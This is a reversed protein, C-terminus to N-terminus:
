KSLNIEKKGMYKDIKAFIEDKIELKLKMESIPLKFDQMKVADKETVLLSTTDYQRMLNVLEEEKFYAHDEFYVKKVVDKPLYADLRHPNSIATVLLMRSSLNEFDVQRTFTDGEKAIIDAYMRTFWFERFPGSPFPLCNRIVKPELLIEYKEIEVRNFGDDLIILETGQEKALDIAKHRDESVIVSANPLSVAMLMPEDGSEEVTALVKGKQSVEVLGRSQRGYGRSIITVNKYRAALAIVFPTKGSGGVILNGVSVIPIGFSKKSTLVRRMFMFIGYLLSLPLFLLIIPYHYWKPEFFMTEFFHTM